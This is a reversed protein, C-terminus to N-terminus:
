TVIVQRMDCDHHTSKNDQRLDCDNHTSENGQRLDCDHHTSENGRRLDYDHHTSENGQRMCKRIIHFVAQGLVGQAPNCTARDFM